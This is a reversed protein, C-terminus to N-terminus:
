KPPHVMNKLARAVGQSFATHVRRLDDVVPQWNVIFSKDDPRKVFGPVDAGAPETKADISTVWHGFGGIGYGVFEPDVVAFQANVILHPTLGELTQTKYTVCVFLTDEGLERRVDQLSESKWDWNLTGYEIFNDITKVRMGGAAVIVGDNLAYGPPWEGYHKQYAQTAAVKEYPIVGFGADALAGELAKAVHTSAGVALSVPVAIEPVTTEKWSTSTWAGVDVSVINSVFKEEAKGHLAYAAQIVAIKLNPRKTVREALSPVGSSNTFGVDAVAPKSRLAPVSL